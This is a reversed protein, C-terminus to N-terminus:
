HGGKSPMPPIVDMMHGFNPLRPDPPVPPEVLDRREYRPEERELPRKMRPKLALGSRHLPIEELRGLLPSPRAHTKAPGLTVVDAAVSPLYLPPELQEASQAEVIEPRVRAPIDTVAVPDAAALALAAGAPRGPGLNLVKHDAIM